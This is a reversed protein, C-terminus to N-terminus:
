AAKEEESEKKDGESVTEIEEVAEEKGRKSVKEEVKDEIKSTISMIKDKFMPLIIGAFALALGAVFGLFAHLSMIACIIGVMVLWFRYYNLTQKQM